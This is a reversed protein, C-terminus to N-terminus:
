KMKKQLRDFEKSILKRVKKKYIKIGKDHSFILFSKNFM